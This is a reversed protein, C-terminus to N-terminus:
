RDARRAKRNQWRRLLRDTILEEVVWGVVSLVFNM